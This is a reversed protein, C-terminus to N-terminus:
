IFKSSINKYDTNAFKDIHHTLNTAGISLNIQQNENQALNYNKYFVTGRKSLFQKVIRIYYYLSIYVSPLVHMRM